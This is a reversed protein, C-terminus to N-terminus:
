PEILTLEGHAFTDDRKMESARTPRRSEQTGRERYNCQSRM